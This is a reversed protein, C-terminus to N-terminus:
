GTGERQQRRPADAGALLADIEVRRPISTQAGARGVCLTAAAMARRLASRVPLGAALGAALVGCLTDGAATTDVAAVPFAPLHLEGAADALVAGGAGLTVIACGAGRRHLLAAAGGDGRGCLAAAEVENVVLVDVALLDEHVAEAPAYNLLVPVGARRALAIAARTTALPVEMQLVLVGAGALTAPLDAPTLAHNAGPAVALYNGGGAGVLVLAAGTDVGPRVALHALELGDARWGAVMERTLADDGVAAIFATPAGARVAAVAQNAGKGGWARLFRGDGVTEGVAPLRPLLITFDLNASGVVTVGRM